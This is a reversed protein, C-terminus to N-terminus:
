ALWPVMSHARAWANPPQQLTQVAPVQLYTLLMQSRRFPITSSAHLKTLRASADPICRARSSPYAQISLATCFSPKGGSFLSFGFVSGLSGDERHRKRTCSASIASYMYISGPHTRTCSCATSANARSSAASVKVADPDQPLPNQQM